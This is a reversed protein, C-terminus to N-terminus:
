AVTSKGMGRTTIYFNDKVNYSDGKATSLHYDDKVPVKYNVAM